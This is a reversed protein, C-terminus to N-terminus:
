VDPQVSLMERHVERIVLEAAEPGGWADTTSWTRALHSDRLLWIRDVYAVASELDHTALMLSIGFEVAVRKIFALTATRSVADLGNLSEDLVLVDREGLLALMISLKQRTGLSYSSIRFPLLKTLGVEEAYQEAVCRRSSRLCLAVLEVAQIGSLAGPLLSPDVAFAVPLCGSELKQSFSLSGHYSRQLGAVVRLLTSKGSGNAGSVVICQGPLVRETINELIARGDYSVSLCNLEVLPM